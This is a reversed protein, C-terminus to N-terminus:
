GRPGIAAHRRALWEAHQAGLEGVPEGGDTLERMLSGWPASAHL